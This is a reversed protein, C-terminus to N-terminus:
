LGKLMHLPLSGISLKVGELFNKLGNNEIVLGLQMALVSISDLDESNLNITETHYMRIIGVVVGKTKVPISLMSVINEETAAEPYQVRPDSALNEILVSEGTFFASYQNDVFVPGKNQYKESIGYSSVTFLQKEREDFLMLCCGKVKFARSLGEVIHNFLLPLDEYTSIALSISKFEKLYFRRNPEQDTM